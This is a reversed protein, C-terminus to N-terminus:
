NGTSLFLDFERKQVMIHTWCEKEPWSNLGTTRSETTSAMSLIVAFLHILFQFVININMQSWYVKGDKMLDNCSFVHANGNMISTGLCIRPNECGGIPKNRTSRNLQTYTHAGPYLPQICHGPTDTEKHRVMMCTRVHIYQLCWTGKWCRLCRKGLFLTGIDGQLWVPLSLSLSCNYSVM